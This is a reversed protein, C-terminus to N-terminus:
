RRFTARRYSWRIVIIGTSRTLQVCSVLAGTRIREGMQVGVKLVNTRPPSWSTRARPMRAPRCRRLHRLSPAQRTRPARATTSRPQRVRRRRMQQPAAPHHPRKLHLRRHPVKVPQGARLRMRVRTSRHLRARYVGTTRLRTRRTNVAQPFPTPKHRDTSLRPPTRIEADELAADGNAASTQSQTGTNSKDGAEPSTGADTTGGNKTDHECGAAATVVTAATSALFARRELTKSSHM